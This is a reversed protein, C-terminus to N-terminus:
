VNQKLFSFFFVQVMVLHRIINNKIGCDLAVVKYPNGKGFYKIEQFVFLFAFQIISKDPMLISKKSISEPKSREHTGCERSVM